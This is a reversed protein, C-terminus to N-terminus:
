IGELLRGHYRQYLYSSALLIVGLGVFSVSRYAPSLFSLDYGVIKLMIAGLLAIAGLRMWRVRRWFGAILLGIAYLLWVVSYTLQELNQLTQLSAGSATSVQHNFIDRTQCSVLELGLLVTSAQLALIVADVWPYAHLAGRLMRSQTYLGVMLALVVLPRLSLALGLWDTPVFFLAAVAGGATAAGLSGLGILLVSLARSRIGHRVLPFSYLLWVASLTMLEVFYGSTGGSEAYMGTAHRFYDHIEASVLEFGFLLIVAQYATIATDIWPYADRASTLLRRVLILGGLLLVVFLVRHNVIPTFREIPQYLFGAGAGLGAALAAAALGVSLFSFVRRRLGAVVFPLGFVMWVTAVFLSRIQELGFRTLPGTGLMQRRFVDNTEVTLLVFLLACWAYQFGTVFAGAKRHPLRHLLQSGAILSGALVLFALARENLLPLFNGAPQALAGPTGLLIVIAIGYLWVAPWWAYWLKWRVGAALLVLAEVSWLMPVLFGSTLLPTAVVALIIATLVYRADLRDATLRRKGFLIAALHVTGLALCFLGMRSGNAILPAMGGLYVAANASGLVHRLGACTTRRTVIRWVDSAFFLIWFLSLAIAATLTPVSEGQQVYWGFYIVYTAAMALPELVFWDDRRAVIGLMGAVLLCVYGIVGAEDSTSLGLLPVTAFGGMWALVAVALSNYYLAQAFALATVAGMAVLAVPTPILHYLTSAAYLSLYLTALGAGVLGQAFIPLAKRYTRRAGELLSLGVALGIGVRIPESIWNNDIAYKLFFAMGLILAVAGIRNLWRGGILAEWEDTGTIREMVPRLVPKAPEAPPLTPAPALLGIPDAPGAAAVVAAAVATLSPAPVPAPAAVPAPAPKAVPEGAAPPVGAASPVRSEVPTQGRLRAVDKELTEVRSKLHSANGIANFALIVSVASCLGVILDM